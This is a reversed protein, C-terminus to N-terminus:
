QLHVQYVAVQSHPFLPTMVPAQVPSLTPPALGQCLVPLSTSPLSHDGRCFGSPLLASRPTGTELSWSLSCNVRRLAPCTGFPHSYELLAGLSPSLICLQLFLCLSLKRLAVPAERGESHVDPLGGSFTSASLRCFLLFPTSTIAPHHALPPPPELEKRTERQPTLFCSPLLLSFPLLPSPLSIIPLPTCPLPFPLSPALSPVPLPPTPFPLSLASLPPLLPSPSPYPPLSCHPSPSSPPCPPPPFPLSLVPCPPCPLPLSPQPDLAQPPHHLANQM